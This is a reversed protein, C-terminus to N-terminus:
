DQVNLQTVFTTISDIFQPMIERWSENYSKHNEMRGGEIARFIHNMKPIIQQKANPTKSQLIEAETLGVQIDKEGQILLIPIELKSLEEAPDYKMWSKMFPQLDYRFISGLAPDFSSAKGYKRLDAFAIAASKDLGPAQRSLQDLIVFDISQGNGALSIFADARDKAAVMGILSGQGHGAVIINTYKSNQKFYDITAKADEIFDDFSIEHEKINFKDMTFLRKDYRFSAIGKKALKISLKKFTDSKSMRDNGDRNVTGADMIFIILPVAEDDAYPTILTGTTFKNTKVYASNYEKEQAKLLLPILIVLQLIYFKM